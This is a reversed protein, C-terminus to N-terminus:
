VKKVAAEQVRVEASGFYETVKAMKVGEVRDLMGAVWGKEGVVRMVCGLGKACADRVGVDGDDLGKGMGECIKGMEGKTPAKIMLCVIRSAWQGGAARVTPNKHGIMGIIDDNVGDLGVSAYVADLASTLNAVVGAKKEKCKEVLPGLVMGRYPTFGTKMGKAIGTICNIALCAVVINADAIKRGLVNMLEGYKGDMIKGHTAHPLLGDLAERREKWKASALLTYFTPTIHDLLSIPEVLEDIVEDVVEEEKKEDEQMEADEVVAEVARKSEMCGLYMEPTIASTEIGEWGAMLDKMQVGKVKDGLGKEVAPIGLVYFM